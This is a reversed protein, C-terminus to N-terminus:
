MNRQQENIFSSQSQLKKRLKEKEKSGYLLLWSSLDIKRERNHRERGNEHSTEYTVSSSAPPPPPQTRPQLLQQMIERCVADHQATTLGSLPLPGSNHHNSSSSSSSSSPHIHTGGDIEYRFLM